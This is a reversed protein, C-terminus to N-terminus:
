LNDDFRKKIIKTINVIAVIVVICMTIYVGGMMLIIHEKM